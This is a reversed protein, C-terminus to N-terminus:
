VGIPERRSIEALEREFEDWDFPPIGDPGNPPLEDEPPGSDDPGDPGDGREAGRSLWVALSCVLIGAAYVVGALMGRGSVSAAAGVIYLLIAAGVLRHLERPAIRVRPARLCVSCFIAVLLVITLVLKWTQSLSAIMHAKIIIGGAM